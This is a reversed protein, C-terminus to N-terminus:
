ERVCEGRVSMAVLVLVLVGMVESEAHRL